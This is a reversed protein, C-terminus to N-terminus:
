TRPVLIVVMMTTLMAGPESVATGDADVIATGIAEPEGRIEISETFPRVMYVTFITGEPEGTNFVKFSMPEESRLEWPAVSFAHSRAENGLWPREAYRPLQDIGVRGGQLVQNSEPTGLGYKLAGAPVTVELEGNALTFTGGASALAAVPEGTLSPLVLDGIDQTTDAVANAALIVNAYQPTTSDFAHIGHAYIARERDPFLDGFLFLGDDGSQTLPCEQDSCAFARFGSIPDGNSDLLRGGIAGSGAPPTHDTFRNEIPADTDTMGTDDPNSTDTVDDGGTTDDDGDSDGCAGIVLACAGITLLLDLRRM